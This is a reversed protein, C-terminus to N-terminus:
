NFLEFLISQYIEQLNIIDELDAHENIQHISHNKLGLEIVQTNDDALFRGDSTGGSTSLVPYLGTHKVISREVKAIFNNEPSESQPTFYPECPRHWQIDNSQIYDSVTDNILVKLKNQNFKHSYRINFAVHCEGPVINDTFEGSNIYTVQLSSGPFDDSGQDWKISTLSAVIQAAIVVANVAYQPYAVHGQKGICRISASIGGRRGVKITDGIHSKSTPEGVLCYDIKINKSDIWSKIIKTGFEAEGEEDSTLLFLLECHPTELQSFFVEIAALMAAIGGKMDAIGRGIITGNNIKASFPDSQWSAPNGVPVVDTHGSFAFCPVNEGYKYHAILNTVGNQCLWQIEFGLKSLKRAIWHQCGNDDPTISRFNVLKQSYLICNQESIEHDIFTNCTVQKKLM